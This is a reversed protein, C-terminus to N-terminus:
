VSRWGQLLSPFEERSVLRAGPFLSQGRHKLTVAPSFTLKCDPGVIPFGPTLGSASVAGMRVELVDSQKWGRSGSRQYGCVHLRFEVPGSLLFHEPSKRKKSDESMRMLIGRQLHMSKFIRYDTSDTKRSDIDGKWRSIHATHTYFYM